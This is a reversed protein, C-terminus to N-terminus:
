ECSVELFKDWKTSGTSLTCHQPTALSNASQPTCYNSTGSQTQINKLASRNPLASRTEGESIQLVGVGYQLVLFFNNFMMLSLCVSIKNM